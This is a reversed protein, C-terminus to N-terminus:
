TPWTCDIEVNAASPARAFGYFSIWLRIKTYTILVFPLISSLARQFVRCVVGSVGNQKQYNTPQARGARRVNTTISAIYNECSQLANCCFVRDGFGFWTIRQWRRFHLFVSIEKFSEIQAEHASLNASIQRWKAVQFFLLRKQMRFCLFHTRMRIPHKTVCQFAM